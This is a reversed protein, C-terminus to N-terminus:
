TAAHRSCSFRVLRSTFILRIGPLDAVKERLLRLVRNSSSVDAEDLADFLLFVSKSGHGKVYTELPRQLLTVFAKDEDQLDDPKWAAISKKYM